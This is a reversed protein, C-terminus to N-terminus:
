TIQGGGERDTSDPGRNNGAMEANNDGEQKEDDKSTIQNPVSPKKVMWDFVYDYEYGM